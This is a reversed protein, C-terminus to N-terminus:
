VGREDKVLEFEIRYLKKPDKGFYTDHLVNILAAMTYFGEKHAEEELGNLPSNYPEEPACSIIRIYAEGKKCRGRQVSYIKGVTKPTQRRTVTKRGSLVLDFLNEGKENKKSFIM